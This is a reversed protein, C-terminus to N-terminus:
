TLRKRRRTMLGLVGLGALLMVYTEPEPIFLGDAIMQGHNNIGMARYLYIDNPLSVLSNLDTMGVGDPGTVFAHVRGPAVQYSGV